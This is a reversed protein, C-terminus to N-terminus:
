IDGRTENELDMGVVVIIDIQISWVSVYETFAVGSSACTFCSSSSSTTTTTWDANNTINIVGAGIYITTTTTTENRGMTDNVSGQVPVPVLTITMIAMTMPPHQDDSRSGAESKIPSIEVPITTAVPVKSTPASMWARVSSELIAIESTHPVTLTILSSSSSSATAAAGQRHSGCSGQCPIMTTIMTMPVTPKQPQQGQATCGCHLVTITTSLLTPTPTPCLIPHSPCITTYSTSIIVPHIDTPSLNPSSQISSPFPGLTPTISALTSSSTMTGTGDNEDIEDGDFTTNYVTLLVVEEDNTEVPLQRKEKSTPRTTIGGCKEVANGRCPYNCFWDPYTVYDINMDVASSHFPSCLCTTDHVAAYRMGKSLCTRVCRSVSQSESTERVVFSNAYPRGPRLGLCGAYKFFDILFPGPLHPNPTLSFTPRPRTFSTVAASSAPSSTRTSSVATSSISSQLIHVSFSSSIEMSGRSGSNSASIPSTNSRSSTSTLIVSGHSSLHSSSLLNTQSGVSTSELGSTTFSTSSTESALSSSTSTSTGFPRYTQPTVSIPVYPPDEVITQHLPDDTVVPYAYYLLRAANMEPKIQTGRVTSKWSCSGTVIDYTVGACLNPEIEDNWYNCGEICDELSSVNWNPNPPGIDPGELDVGCEIEYNATGSKIVMFHYAPCLTDTPLPPPPLSSSLTPQPPELSAIYPLSPRAIADPNKLQYVRVYNIEWFSQKFAAPNSATYAECTSFGTSKACSNWDSNWVYPNGAYDGCFANNLVIKHSQFRDDMVCSGQMHAQPIGWTSPNPHGSVIDEPIQGRPFMWIKIYESTWQMVYVGGDIANFGSGFALPRDDGVGCGINNCLLCLGYYPCVGGPAHKFDGVFLGHTWAKKTSIRVSPRGPAGSLPISTEYDSGIYTPQDEAAHILNSVQASARGLYTVFGHTPDDGTFFDWGDFFNRGSYEADLYYESGTFSSAFQVYISLVFAFCLSQFAM